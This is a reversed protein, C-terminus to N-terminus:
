PRSPPGVKGRSPPATETEAAEVAAWLARGKNISEEYEREPDSETVIGAGAQVHAMQNLALLTRIAINLELNGSFGIWGISGTYPGRRVPELEEIIQLTRTKPTGTITGGPFVAQIADFPAAEERLKGEVHSVIHMVHSYREVTMFETVQVSEKESVKELDARILDVLMLHERREKQNEILEDALLKDSIEDSGRPRTGAIPRTEIKKDRVKVLLEPSGCVLSLGPLRLLGMYPSPNISRLKEYVAEPTARLPRSERVSLNVQDTEGSDIYNQIKKVAAIFDEKAFSFSATASPAAAPASKPIRPNSEATAAHKKWERAMSVTKEFAAQYGLELEADSTEPTSKFHVACFLKKQLHDFIFVEEALGFLALPVDLDPKAISPIKEFLRVLDYSLYGIWGGLFPPSGPIKPAREKEIESRIFEIPSDTTTKTTTLKGNELQLRNASTESCSLLKEIRPALITYRGGKGTELLTSFPSHQWWPSWTQPFDANPVTRVFPLRNFDTRWNQWEALSPANM